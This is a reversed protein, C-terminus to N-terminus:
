STKAWSQYMALLSVIDQGRFGQALALAYLERAM